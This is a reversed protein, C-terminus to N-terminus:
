HDAATEVEGAERALEDVVGGYTRQFVGHATAVATSVDYVDGRSKVARDMVRITTVLDQVREVLGRDNKEAYRLLHETQDRCTEFTPGIRPLDSTAIAGGTQKVLWEM